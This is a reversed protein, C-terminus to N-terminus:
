RVSRLHKWNVYGGCAFSLKGLVKYGMVTTNVVKENDDLFGLFSYRPSSRNITLIADLIDICNGGTGLIVIKKMGSFTSNRSVNGLHATCFYPNM